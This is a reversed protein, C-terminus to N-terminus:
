CLSLQIINAYRAAYVEDRRLAAESAADAQFFVELLVGNSINNFPVFIGYMIFTVVFLLWCSLGFNGWAFTGADDETIEEVKGSSTAGAEEMEIVGGDAQDSGPIRQYDSHKKASYPHMLEILSGHSDHYVLLVTMGFCLTCLGTVVGAAVDIGLSDAIYPSVWDTLVGGLKCVSLNIGLAFALQAGVFYKAIITNACVQLTEAGLGFVFRGVELIVFDVRVCAILLLVNGLLVLAACGLMVRDNGLVDCLIGGFAPLIMNPMSYLSYLLSFHFEFDDKDFGFHRRLQNHLVSPFDFSYYGGFTVTCALFLIFWKLGEKNGKTAGM